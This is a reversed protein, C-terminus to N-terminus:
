VFDNGMGSAAASGTAFDFGSFVSVGKRFRSKLFGTSFLAGHQRRPRPLRHCLFPSLPIGNEM